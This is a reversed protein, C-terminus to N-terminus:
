DDNLKLDDCGHMINGGKRLTAIRNIWSLLRVNGYTPRPPVFYSFIFLFIACAILQRFGYNWITEFAVRVTADAVTAKGKLKIRSHIDHTRM